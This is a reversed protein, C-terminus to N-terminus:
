CVTRGESLEAAPDAANPCRTIWYNDPNVIPHQPNWCITRHRRPSAPFHCSGSM